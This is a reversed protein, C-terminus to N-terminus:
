LYPLYPSLFFAGALPRQCALAHGVKAEKAEKEARLKEIAAAVDDRGLSSKM